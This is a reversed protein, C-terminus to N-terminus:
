RRRCSGSVIAAPCSALLRTIDLRGILSLGDFVQGLLQGVLVPVPHQEGPEQGLIVQQHVRVATATLRSSHSSSAADSRAGM